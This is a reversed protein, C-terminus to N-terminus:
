PDPILSRSPILIPILCSEAPAQPRRRRASGTLRAARLAIFAKYSEAAGVTNQQGEQARALWYSLPALYRFTPVDDLFIATAEGRRKM